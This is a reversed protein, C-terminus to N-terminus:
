PRPDNPHKIHDLERKLRELEDSLGWTSGIGQKIEDIQRQAAAIQNDVAHWHEVHEARPVLGDEFRRIEGLLREHEKTGVFDNPLAELLAVYQQQSLSQKAKLEAVNERIPLYALTGIAIVASLVVSMAQWQPRDRSELRASVREMSARVEAALANLGSELGRVQVTLASLQAADNWSRTVEEAGM